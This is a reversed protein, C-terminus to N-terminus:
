RDKYKIVERLVTGLSIVAPSVFPSLVPRLRRQTGDQQALRASETPATTGRMATTAHKPMAQHKTVTAATTACDVTLKPVPTSANTPVIYTIETTGALFGGDAVKEM